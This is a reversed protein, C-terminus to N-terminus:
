PAFWARNFAKLLDDFVEPQRKAFLDQQIGRFDGPRFPDGFVTGGYLARKRQLIEPNNQQLAKLAKDEYGGNLQRAIKYEAYAAEILLPDYYLNRQRKFQTLVQHEGGLIFTDARIGQTWIPGPSAAARSAVGAAVLVCGLILIASQGRM